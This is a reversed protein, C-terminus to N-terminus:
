EDLEDMEIWQGSTTYVIEWSALETTKNMWNWRKAEIKNWYIKLKESLGKRRDTGTEEDRRRWFELMRESLEAHSYHSVDIGRLELEKRWFESMTESHEDVRPIGGTKIPKRWWKKMYLGQKIYQKARAKPVKGRTRIDDWYQRVKERIKMERETNGEAMKKKWYRYMVQRHKERKVQSMNAWSGDKKRKAWYDKMRKSQIVRRDARQGKSKIRQWYAKMKKSHEKFRETLLTANESGWKQKMYESHKRKREESWLFDGQRKPPRITGHITRNLTTLRGDKVSKWYAKMTESQRDLRKSDGSQKVKTWYNFMKESKEKFLQALKDPDGKEKRTKWNAKIKESHELKKRETWRTNLTSGEEKVKKWKEIMRERQEQRRAESWKYDYWNTGNLLAMNWKEKMIKTQKKRRRITWKYKKKKKIRKKRRKKRKRKTGNTKRKVERQMRHLIQSGLGRQPNTFLSQLRKEDGLHACSNTDVRKTQSELERQPNTFFSQVTKEDGHGLNVRSDTNVMNMQSELGRQPNTFVSKLTKDNTQDPRTMIETEEKVEKIVQIDGAQCKNRVTSMLLLTLFFLDM